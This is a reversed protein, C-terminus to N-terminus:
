NKTKEALFEIYRKLSYGHCDNPHNSTTIGAKADNGRFRRCDCILDIYNGEKYEKVRSAFWDRASEEMANCAHWSDWLLKDFM